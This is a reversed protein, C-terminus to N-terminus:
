KATSVATSATELKKVRETLADLASKSAYTALMSVDAKNAIMADIQLISAKKGEAEADLAAWDEEEPMLNRATALQSPIM